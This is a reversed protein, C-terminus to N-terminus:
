VGERLYRKRQFFTAASDRIKREPAMFRENKRCAHVGRPTDVSAREGERDVEREYESQSSFCFVLCLM